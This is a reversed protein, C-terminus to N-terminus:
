AMMTGTMTVHNGLGDRDDDKQGDNPITPCNDSSEPIADGDSGYDIDCVDGLIGTLMQRIPMRFIPVTIKSIWSATVMVIMMIALMVSVMAM